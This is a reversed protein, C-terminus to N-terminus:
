TKEPRAEPPVRTVWSGRWFHYQRRLCIGFCTHGDCTLGELIVTNKLPLMEGTNELIIRDARSQVRYKGGCFPLM